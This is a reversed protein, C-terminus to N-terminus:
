VRDRQVAAGDDDDYMCTNCILIKFIHSEISPHMEQSIIECCARLARQMRRARARARIRDPGDAAISPRGSSSRALPGDPPRQRDLSLSRPGRRGYCGLVCRSVAATGPPPPLLLQATAPCRGAPMGISM